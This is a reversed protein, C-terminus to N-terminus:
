KEVVEFSLDDVWARVGGFSLVGLYITRADDDIKGAIEALTWEGSRVPRNEMSDSFGIQGNTREVRLWLQGRDDDGPTRFGGFPTPFLREIKLWGRLRVTKGRYPAAGFGQKLTGAQGPVNVPATVVVCSQSRCNDRHVQAVYGADNAPAQVAWPAAPVKGPQGDEFTLNKPGVWDALRTRALAVMPAQDAFENEVRRYSNYAERMRGLKEMCGGTGLLARAAVPHPVDAQALIGRYAEIAGKLDGLVVERQIAEALRRELDAERSASWALAVPIIVLVLKRFWHRSAARKTDPKPLMEAM